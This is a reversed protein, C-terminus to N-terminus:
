WEHTVGLRGSMKLKLTALVDRWVHKRDHSKEKGHWGEILPALPKWTGLHTVLTLIKDQNMRSVVHIPM